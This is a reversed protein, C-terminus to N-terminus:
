AEEEDSPEKSAAGRKKSGPDEEGSAVKMVAGRKSGSGSPRGAPSPRATSATGFAVKHQSSGQGHQLATGQAGEIPRSSLLAVKGTTPTAVGTLAVIEDDRMSKRVPPPAKAGFAPNVSPFLNVGDGMPVSKRDFRFELVGFVAAICAVVGGCIGLGAPSPGALLQPEHLPPPM